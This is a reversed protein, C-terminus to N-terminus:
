AESLPTGVDTRELIFPLEMPLGHGNKDEACACLFVALPVIVVLAKHM